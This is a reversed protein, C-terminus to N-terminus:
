REFSESASTTSTTSVVYESFPRSIFTYAGASSGSTNNAPRDPSDVPM